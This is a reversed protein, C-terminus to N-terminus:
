PDKEFTVNFTRENSNLVDNTNTINTCIQNSFLLAPILSLLALKM